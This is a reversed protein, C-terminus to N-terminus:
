NEDQEQNPVNGAECNPCVQKGEPIIAGCVVCRNEWLYNMFSGFMEAVNKEQETMKRGLSQEVGSIAEKVDIM